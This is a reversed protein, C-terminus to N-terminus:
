RVLQTQVLALGPRFQQDAIPFLGPPIDGSFFRDLNKLHFVVALLDLGDGLKEGTQPTQFFMKSDTQVLGKRFLRRKVRQHQLGFGGLGIEVLDM